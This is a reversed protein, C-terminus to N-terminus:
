LLLEGVFDVVLFFEDCVVFLSVAGCLFMELFLSFWFGVSSVGVVEM